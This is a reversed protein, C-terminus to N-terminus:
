TSQGDWRPNLRIMDYMEVEKVITILNIAITFIYNYLYLNSAMWHCLNYQNRKHSQDIIMYHDGM